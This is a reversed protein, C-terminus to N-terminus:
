CLGTGTQGSLETERFGFCIEFCEFLELDRTKGFTDM